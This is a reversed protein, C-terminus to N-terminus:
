GHFGDIEVTLERRCVEGQLILRPVDAPLLQDLVRRAEDLASRDRLYVKLLSRAGFQGPLEPRQRHAAALLSEFNRFTECLQAGVSGPHLSDHGVVAATGSLMLPLRTSADALMARAFSPPRPGYRRPYRYAPLQRPNELPTGAVRASLWYVQLLPQPQLHGIATAAPLAADPLTLARARGVCFQRYREADHEGRTIGHLYNWVRLLHPQPSHRCHAALQAYAREAAQTPGDASEDQQLWGFCLDGSRAGRLAGEQWLQVPQEATWVEFCHNAELPELPELSVRLYRPDGFDAPASAGFGFVALTRPGLLERPDHARVYSPVLGDAVRQLTPQASV